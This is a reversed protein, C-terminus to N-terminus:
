YDQVDVDVVARACPQLAAEFSYRGLHQGEPRAGPVIPAKPREARQNPWSPPLGLAGAEVGLLTRQVKEAQGELAWM